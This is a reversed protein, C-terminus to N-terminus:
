EARELSELEEPSLWCRTESGADDLRVIISDKRRVSQFGYTQNGERVGGAPHIRRIRLSQHSLDIELGRHFLWNTLTRGGYKSYSGSGGTQIYELGM